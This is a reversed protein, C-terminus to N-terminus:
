TCSAPLARLYPLGTSGCINWTTTFDWLNLPSNTTVSFYPPHDIDAIATTNSNTDGWSPNSPTNHWYSNVISGSGHGSFSGTTTGTRSYVDGVSFSHSVSNGASAPNDGAFGGAMAYSDNVNASSYSNTVAGQLIGVLGGVNRGIWYGSNCGDPAMIEGQSFSNNILSSAFLQGVLGGLQNCGTVNV